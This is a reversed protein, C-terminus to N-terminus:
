AAKSTLARLHGSSYIVLAIWISTFSVLRMPTLPERYVFAGILFGISPVIYQLVGLTGLPLRRAGSAFLLLPVATVIGASLVGAQQWSSAHGLAGGGHGAERQLRCQERGDGAGVEYKQGRM